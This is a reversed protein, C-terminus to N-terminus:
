KTKVWGEKTLMREWSPVDQETITHRKKEEGKKNFYKVFALDNESSIIIHHPSKAKDFESLIKEM